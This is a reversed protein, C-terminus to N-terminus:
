LNDTPVLLPLGVDVDIPQGKESLAAHAAHDGRQREQGRDCGEVPAMERDSAM